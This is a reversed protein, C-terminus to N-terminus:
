AGAVRQPDLIVSRIGKSETELDARLQQLFAVRPNLALLGTLARSGLRILRQLRESAAFAGLALATNPRGLASDRAVTKGTELDSQVVDKLDDLAQYSLGWFVAIRNLLSVERIPANGLMAPLVLTLRILSVTKGLAIQEAARPDRAASAYNLDLSQGNLLGSVGLHKEVYAHCERQQDPGAVSLAKWVLAYARNILGLASLIAGAEGYGLHLCPVGRRQAANDMCPLDDFLLSATHFYELAIALDKAPDESVGYAAAMELVIQPRVLSGPTHLVQRLASRLNPELHAPLPLYRCYDATLEELKSVNM